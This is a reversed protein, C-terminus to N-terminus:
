PSSASFSDCAAIDGDRFGAYFWRVRQASSGHTFSDPVAYGQAQKQLNDDGIQAAANLAEDIDGPELSAFLREAERAWVGSFCDAQLELRVSLQNAEVESAGARARNVEPLVGLENQVHHGVEHAIVYARAFDGGAGLRQQLTRFFDADLYIRKDAPCYFPGTAASAGGCGSRTQGSFLVLVPPAYTRGLRESFIGSWVEETDALVVSIFEETQDDIRNPSRAQQAGQQPAPAYGGDGMMGLLTSPDVGFILGLVVVAVLGLGGVRMGGRAPIRGRGGGLGGFGGGGRQDDINSSGRRGRWKM